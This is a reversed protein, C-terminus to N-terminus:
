SVKRYKKLFINQVVTVDHGHIKRVFSNVMRFNKVFSLIHM